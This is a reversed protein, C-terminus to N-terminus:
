SEEPPKINGFQTLLLLDYAIKLGGGIILPWAFPSVTMLWGALAPSAAAALSRPVATLSAAAAREPPTVVAMVYSSRAPVDMQSLAARVFLLGMVTALNPAFPVLLLCVSAPIHTFVMTNVLGIRRALAPAALFSAASLLGCWFFFVGTTVLSLGFHQFLWLALLSQVLFGGGFSDLSFLAALRLVIARSPGLPARPASQLPADIRLRRYLAFNILGIAGYLVFMARITEARPWGFVAGIVDPLGAALAGLAGIVAGVLSYRAFTATRRDHSESHALLSQELPLFLSVDGASPNLTGVLGVIVLPWFDRTAAFCIGTMAMLLAAALLLRRPDLRHAALGVGLTLAASGILTATTFVGIHFPNAGIGALYVPILLATYGDGFARLGRATLLLAARPNSAGRDQIAMM